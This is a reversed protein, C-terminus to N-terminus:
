TPCGTDSGPPLVARWSSLEGCPLCGGCRGARPPSIPLLPWPRHSTPSSCRRWSRRASRAQLLRIGLILSEPVGDVVSGVVIGLPAPGSGKEEGFRAEVIRDSIVFIAAGILLWLALEDLPLGEGQPILDYAITSILAGAGFGALCGIVRQPVTVKYVILGSLLLSSQAAIGLLVAKWM